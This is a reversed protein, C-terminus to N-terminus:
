KIKKYVLYVSTNGGESGVNAPYDKGNVNIIEIGWIEGYENPQIDFSIKDGKKLKYGNIELTAFEGGTDEEPILEYGNTLKISLIDGYDSFEVSDVIWNFNFNEFTKLIKMNCYKNKVLVYCPTYTLKKNLIYLLKFDFFGVYVGM